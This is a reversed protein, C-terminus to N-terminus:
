PWQMLNLSRCNALYRTQEAKLQGTMGPDCIVLTHEANLVFSRIDINSTGVLGVHDDISLFSAHLFSEKYLHVKRWCSRIM